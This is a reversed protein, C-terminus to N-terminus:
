SSFSWASASSLRRQLFCHPSLVSGPSHHRGRCQTAGQRWNIIHILILVVRRKALLILKMNYFYCYFFNFLVAKAVIELYIGCSELLKIWTTCALSHRYGRNRTRKLRFVSEWSRSMFKGKRQAAVLQVWKMWENIWETKKLVMIIRRLGCIASSISAPRTASKFWADNDTFIFCLSFVTFISLTPKEPFTPFVFVFFSLLCNCYFLYVM